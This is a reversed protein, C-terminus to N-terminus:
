INASNHTNIENPLYKKLAGEEAEALFKVVIKKLNKYLGEFGKIREFLKNWYYVDLYMPTGIAADKLGTFGAITVSKFDKERKIIKSWSLRGVCDFEINNKRGYQVMVCGCDSEKNIEMMNVMNEDPQAFIFDIIEKFTVEKM